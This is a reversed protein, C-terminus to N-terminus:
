GSTSTPSGVLEEYTRQTTSNYYIIESGTTDFRFPVHLVSNLQQKIRPQDEPRAFLLFFGGGGAGLLKGGIAGASRATEYLADVESTAISTSLGRKLQWTEHLLKGFEAIDAKGTLLALAEDVMQQMTALDQNGQRAVEIVKAAVNSSYRSIGTYVLMLHEELEQLRQNPLIVPTPRIDGNPAFDIRNFGGIAALVQDQCGVNEGILEQEVFIAEQALEMKGAMRGQLAHLAHLLGVTFSSSSGMGTRAPLDGDHHIEMGKDIGMHQLCARVSPHQIEEVSNVHEIRSYVVRHTHDFFPPLSRCTIFSYKDITTGLVAGGHVRYWAPYDTGGGFFSIRYPTRSIIM